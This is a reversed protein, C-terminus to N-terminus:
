ERNLEDIVKQNSEEFTEITVGADFTQQHLDKLRIIYTNLEEEDFFSFEGELRFRNDFIGVSPDGHITIHFGRVIM